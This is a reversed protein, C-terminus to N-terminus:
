PRSKGGRREALTKAERHEDLARRVIDGESVGLEEARKALWECMPEPIRICKQRSKRAMALPSRDSLSFSCRVPVMSVTDASAFM